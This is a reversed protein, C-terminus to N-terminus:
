IFLNHSSQDAQGLYYGVGGIGVGDILEERTIGMLDMSMQCAVIEVGQDVAMQILEELSSVNNNKMVSRIMKSGMGMMNMNSLTLKRSGRPMMAGFMKGIFNKNVPVKEDKRIINLGWFTFFMTVKKGSSAAGNAIIFSAIAKDLDGSFVVMTSANSTQVPQAGTPISDAPIGKRLYAEIMGTPLKTLQLLTHKSMRAWAKIDEYFGPDSATVKLVQGDLLPDMSMKVQILPGPCCLGCADLVSDPTLNWEQNSTASVSASSNSAFATTNTNAAATSTGTGNSTDTGAPAGTAAIEKRAASIGANPTLSDKKKPSYNSMQYTKYGGTLNKVRFGKQQLIRSATYGRLGVQCYVWIEKSPDLEALRGRLDDVPINISGEIHGNAHEIESRVDVLITNNNDRGELDKPVFVTTMGKLINEAAFGAMNVPDKASSYPPAYSLELETLDTVTGRFRIVTAIDDIRKDVGSYGVAQAGLVTGKPDFILKMSIPTAGPYYTAHSSPHVYIVHYPLGLRQLTKENNGTSAGTVGFVKIISTGQSGKYTTGLGSVNDAAIRGQKNAPGALPIATKTGNVFDVVEVADGVAYVQDLNTEMRENVLIHGRPGFELGSDKLFSTDPSVGIALLVMDSQLVTGSALQVEIQEGVEAFGQVMDSFILNVGHEDLEKALISSMETDFPALIQPGAEILSVELGAERLNEAMEVGIFGGGIVVASRTGEAAVKTKIKDTDPINRLMHIKSSEIGPLNPRIPKAGPSLILADYSEEYSGREKSEVRVKKNVPDISVVESEIRVDINFRKHMAEPTQVLLKSRDQISGGIYYPLGCNAFSIYPDREFMVIHAEEDLRRLRAAASAGGAVGGVILVKKSM